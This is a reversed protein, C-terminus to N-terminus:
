FLAMICSKRFILFASITEHVYGTHMRVSNRYNWLKLTRHVSFSEFSM